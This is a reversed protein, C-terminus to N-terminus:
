RKSRRRVLGIGALGAGLLFITSPEPVPSGPFDTTIKGYLDATGNDNEFVHFEAANPSFGFSDTAEFRTFSLTYTNGNLSFTSTPDVPSTLFVFDASAVPDSTNTTSVLQFNYTFDQTLGTPTTFALTSVLNVTNATSGV